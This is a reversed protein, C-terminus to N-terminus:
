KRKGRIVVAVAIVAIAIGAAAIGIIAGAGPGKKAQTDAPVEAEPAETAEPAASPEPTAEAEPAPTEETEEAPKTIDLTTEAYMGDTTMFYFRFTWTEGPAASSMMKGPALNIRGNTDGSLNYKFVRNAKCVMDFNEVGSVADQGEITYAAIGCGASKLKNSRFRSDVTFADGTDLTYLHFEGEVPVLKADVVEIPTIDQEKDHVIYAIRQSWCELLQDARYRRYTGEDSGAAPDTSYFYEVGDVTEYGTLTILHGATGSMAANELYPYSGNPDASYKVNIGVIHGNALENRVVDFDAYQVYSEYGFMGAVAVTFPWNGFGEYYYDWNLLGVQEPLLDEGYYNLMICMTTASCMVNGISPERVMQSIAPVELKVSAPLEGEYASYTQTPTIYQGDLTNKYTACVQELVPTVAADDSHLIVKLQVLSATEGDSGRITFIDTDVLALDTTESVSARKAINRSWKGWTLWDTWAKKMDVYARAQVEVYTGEPVEANWSAVMYEFAETEFIESVYEGDTEGEALRLAGDSVDSSTLTLATLEGKAFDEETAIKILNGEVPTGKEKAFSINALSFVFMTALVLSLTRKM